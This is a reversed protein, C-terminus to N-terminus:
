NQVFARRVSELKKYLYKYKPLDHVYNEFDDFTIYRKNETDIAYFILDSKEPTSQSDHRMLKRFSERSLHGNSNDWYIPAITQLFKIQEQNIMKCFVNCILHDKLSIYGTQCPDLLSFLHHYHVNNMDVINLLVAFYVKDINEKSKSNQYDNLLDLCNSSDLLGLKQLKREIEVIDRSRPIKWHKARDMVLVDDFSYESTPINLANAMVKRVNKAFLNADKKEAENPKYVPLYEIECRNYFQAMTLWLLRLIGPGDWTWTFSDYKNPYRLLVPQVPVGPFFAGPKFRILASRNTCTGEPFIAVQPWDKESHARDIIERITNQRSNPDERQVYIPQSYNIVKGLLTM